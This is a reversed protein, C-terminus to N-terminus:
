PSERVGGRRRVDRPSLGTERAVLRRLTGEDAYGVRPAIEELSLRSTELLHVATDVRLRQVFGIPTLGLAAHLRRALTRASTGSRRALTAVDFPEALHARAWSEARRVVADDTRVFRLAMYAAQSPHRDLLLARGTRRALTPGAHRAVLHLALDAIAFVAGTTALRPEVVLAETEVVDVAPHRRRLEPALWWTTTARRGDLLGTRALFFTAACSTAVTAGRAYARELARVALAVDPRELVADLGEPGNMWIGPMVVVDARALDRLPRTGDVVLGSAARVAGGRPSVVFPRFPAPRGERLAITTAARLVDLAVALGSDGFGDTVVIAIAREM